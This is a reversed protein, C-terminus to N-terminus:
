RRALRLRGHRVQTIGLLAGERVAVSYSGDAWPHVIFMPGNRGARKSIKSVRAGCVLESRSIGPAVVQM